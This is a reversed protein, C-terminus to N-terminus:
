NEPAYLSLQAHDELKSQWETYVVQVSHFSRVEVASENNNTTQSADTQESPTSQCGSIAFLMSIVLALKNARM